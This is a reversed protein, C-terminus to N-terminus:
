SENEYPYLEKGEVEKLKDEQDSPFTIINAAGDSVFRRSPNDRLIQLWNYIGVGDVNTESATIRHISEPDFDTTYPSPNPDWGVNVIAIHDYAAGEYSGEKLYPELSEDPRSGFPLSLLNINYDSSISEELYAKQGGIEKQITEVGTGTFNVHTQTHNGIEMGNEILFDFKKTILDEQGFRESGNIFFTARPEFDEYKEAFDMIIGVACDPDISGDELYNFNNQRGDDFTLVYPSKGAPTTINGNVYDTLSIPLYGEDYLTQLDRRLNDPTRIYEGEPEKIQHYMLVMVQGAENPKLSLDIDETTLETKKKKFFGGEEKDKEQAIRTDQPNEVKKESTGQNYAVFILGLLIGITLIKKM